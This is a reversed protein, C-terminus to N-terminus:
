RNLPHGGKTSLLQNLEVLSTRLRSDENDTALARVIRCVCQDIEEGLSNDIPDLVVGLQLRQGVSRAGAVRAPLLLKLFIVQCGIGSGDSRKAAAPLAETANAVSQTSSLSPLATISPAQEGAARSPTAQRSRPTLTPGRDGANDPIALTGVLAATIKNMVEAKGAPTIMGELVLRKNVVRAGTMTFEFWARDDSSRATIKSGLM